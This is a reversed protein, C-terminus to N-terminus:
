QAGNKYKRHNEGWLKSNCLKRFKYGGCRFLQVLWDVLCTNLLAIKPRYLTTKVVEGTRSRIGERVASM